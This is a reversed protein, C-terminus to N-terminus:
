YSGTYADKFKEETTMEGAGSMYLSSCLVTLRSIRLEDAGRSGELLKSFHELV